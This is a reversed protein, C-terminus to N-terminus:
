WPAKLLSMKSPCKVDPLLAKGKRIERLAVLVTNSTDTSKSLRNAWFFKSLVVVWSHLVEVEQQHSHSLVDRNGLREQQKAM